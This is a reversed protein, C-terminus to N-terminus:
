KYSNNRVYAIRGTERVKVKDVQSNINELIIVSTNPLYQYEIGSLSPNQYLITRGKFYKVMGVTSPIKKHLLFIYSVRTDACYDKYFFLYCVICVCNM